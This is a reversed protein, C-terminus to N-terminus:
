KLYAKLMRAYNKELNEVFLKTNFLPNTLKNNELKSKYLKLLKPSKALKVALNEYESVSNTILEPLGIATLLSSSVRSAFHRGKLTVVPVGAWLCVSTTTHGNYIFTDLALDALKLRALHKEAPLSPSFVL